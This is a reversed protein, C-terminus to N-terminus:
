MRWADAALRKTVGPTGYLDNAYSADVLSDLEEVLASGLEPATECDSAIWIELLLYALRGVCAFSLLGAFCIVCATCLAEM